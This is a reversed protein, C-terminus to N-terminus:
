DEADAFKFAVRGLWTMGRFYDELLPNGVYHGVPKYAGYDDEFGPILASKGRGGAAMIQDIQPQILKEMAPDLKADKSFLRLAVALYEEALKSDSELSTGKAKSSFDSVKELTGSTIDIAEQLLVEQELKKLLADFTIHLAHYAADTTLYYPQGFNESAQIRIDAFQEEGTHMVIFGNKSLFATQEKTFGGTVGPNEVMELNVPLEDGQPKYATEKWEKLPTTGFDEPPHNSNVIAPESQNQTDAAPVNSIPEAIVTTATQVSPTTGEAFSFLQCSILFFSFLPVFFHKKM